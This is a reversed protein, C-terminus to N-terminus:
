CTLIGSWIEADWYDEDLVGRIGENCMMSSALAISILILEVTNTYYIYMVYKNIVVSLSSEIIILYEM